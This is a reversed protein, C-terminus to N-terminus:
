CKGRFQLVARRVQYNQFLTLVSSRFNTLSGAMQTNVTGEQSQASATGSNPWRLTTPYVNFPSFRLDNPVLPHFRYAYLPNDM